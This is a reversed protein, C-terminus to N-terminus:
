NREPRMKKIQEQLGKITNNRRYDEKRVSIASREENSKNAIGGDKYRHLEMEDKIRDFDDDPVRVTKRDPNDPDDSYSDWETQWGGIIHEGKIILYSYKM